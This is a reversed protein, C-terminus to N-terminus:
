VQVTWTVNTRCKQLLPLPLVNAWCSFTDAWVKQGWLVETHKNRVRESFYWKISIVTTPMCIFIFMRTGFVHIWLVKQEEQLIFILKGGRTELSQHPTSICRSAGHVQWYWLQLLEFHNFILRERCKLIIQVVLVQLSVSVIRVLQQGMSLEVFYMKNWDQIWM